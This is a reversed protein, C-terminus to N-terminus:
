SEETIIKEPHAGHQKLLAEVSEVMEPPGCVYFFQDVSKLHKRLFSADVRGHEAGDVHEQTFTLLLNDNSCARLEKGLFLDKKTKNSFIIQEVADSEKMAQDRLIALMPTVGAGGAIFTGKGKFQIAGWADEIILRDGPKLDDLKDTVGEHSPYIKITFELRDENPLSTFTFPRKEDRLGDKDISVLTAQGPTFGYGEPKETKFRRVNHNLSEIK